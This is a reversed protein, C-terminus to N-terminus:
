HHRRQGNRDYYQVINNEDVINQKSDPRPSPSM